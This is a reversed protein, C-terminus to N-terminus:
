EKLDRDFHGVRIMQKNVIKEQQCTVELAATRISPETGSYYKSSLTRIQWRTPFTITVIQDKLEQRGFYNCIGNTM